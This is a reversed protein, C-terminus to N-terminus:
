ERGYVTRENLVAEWGLRDLWADENVPCEVAAIHRDTIDSLIRTPGLVINGESLWTFIALGNEIRKFLIGALSSRGDLNSLGIMSSQDMGSVIIFFEAAPFAYRLASYWRCLTDREAETFWYPQHPSDATGEPHPAFTWEAAPPVAMTSVLFHRGYVLM